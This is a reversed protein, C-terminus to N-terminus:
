VKDFKKEYVSECGQDICTSGQICKPEMLSHYKECQRQIALLKFKMITMEVTPFITSCVPCTLKLM